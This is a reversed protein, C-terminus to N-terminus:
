RSKGMQHPFDTKAHEMNKDDPHLGGSIVINSLFELSLTTVTATTPFKIDSSSVTVNILFSRLYIFVGSSPTCEEANTVKFSFSSVLWLLVGLYHLQAGRM